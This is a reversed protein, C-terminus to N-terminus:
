KPLVELPRYVEGKVPDNFKYVITKTFPITTNGFQLEFILEELPPTEPLGILEQPAAYMGETGKENLWYPSSYLPNNNAADVTIEITKKDNFSHKRLIWLM